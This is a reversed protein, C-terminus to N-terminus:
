NATHLMNKNQQTSISPSLTIKDSRYDMTKMEVGIGISRPAFIVSRKYFVM